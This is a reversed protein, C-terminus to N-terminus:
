NTLNINRDLFILSQAILGVQCNTGIKKFQTSLFHTFLSIIARFRNLLISQALGTWIYQRCLELQFLEFRPHKKGCINQCSRGGKGAGSM